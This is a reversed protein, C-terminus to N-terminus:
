RGDDGAPEGGLEGRMITREEHRRCGLAEALHALGAAAALGRGCTFLDVAAYGSEPWTHITLHSEAIVVVGSVGQPSFRHFHDSVITAGCRRAAELMAARILEEDDLRARPCGYLEALIHTGLAM